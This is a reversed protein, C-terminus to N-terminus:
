CISNSKDIKTQNSEYDKLVNSVHGANTGLAEAIEKNTLALQKLKYIKIHKKCTLQIIEEKTM